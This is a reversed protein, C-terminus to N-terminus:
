VNICNHVWCDCCALRNCPVQYEKHRKEKFVTMFEAKGEEMRDLRTKTEVAEKHEKIATAVQM